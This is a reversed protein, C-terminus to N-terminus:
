IHAGFTVTLKPSGKEFLITYNLNYNLYCTSQRRSKGSPRDKLYYNQVLQFVTILSLTLTEAVTVSSALNSVLNWIM